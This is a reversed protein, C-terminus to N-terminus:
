APSEYLIEWLRNDLNMLNARKGKAQVVSFM